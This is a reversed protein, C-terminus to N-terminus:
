PRGSARQAKPALRRVAASVAVARGSSGEAHDREVAQRGLAGLLELPVDLGLPMQDGRADRVAGVFLQDRRDLVLDHGLQELGVARIERDAGVQHVQWPGVPRAALDAHHVREGVGDDPAQRDLDVLGVSPHGVLGHDRGGRGELRLDM